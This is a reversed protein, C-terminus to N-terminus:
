QNKAGQDKPRLVALTDRARYLLLGFINEQHFVARKIGRELPKFVLSPDGGLPTDGAVIPLGTKVSKGAGAAFLERV